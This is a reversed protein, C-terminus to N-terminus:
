IFSSVTYMWTMTIDLTISSHLWEYGGHRTHAYGCGEVSFSVRGVLVTLLILLFDPQSDGSPLKRYTWQTAIHPMIHASWM